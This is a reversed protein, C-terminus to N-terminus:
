NAALYLDLAHRVADSRKIGRSALANLAAEQSPTIAVNVRPSRQGKPGTAGGLRPRGGVRRELDVLDVEAAELFARGDAAARAGTVARRPHFQGAEAWAALAADQQQSTM